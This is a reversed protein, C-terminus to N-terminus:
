WWLWPASVTTEEDAAVKGLEVTKTKEGKHWVVTIEHAAPMGKFAGKRAGITLTRGELRLEATTFADKQYDLSLGDDEYWTSVGDAGLYAHLEIRDNWGRDLHLKVPWRPIVAGAKVYLAGGWRADKVIPRACPGVVEEGTRWEFWTGPPLVVKEDYVGVLLSDGLMYSTVTDAYEPRDPYVFAFPRCIPWGSRHAKAAAGYIYPFLSYRLRAYDRFANFEDEELLWPEDHYHWNNQLTWSALFAYHLRESNAVDLDCSEHPQGSMALNHCSVLTKPGGGTDGAWSPSFQQYGPYGCPNICFPRKDTYVAYGQYMQKSYVLPYINHIEADRYKGAWTRDKWEFVQAGADMKFAKAGHDVFKKLHQFWPETGDQEAGTMNDPRFVPIELALDARTEVTRKDLRIAEKESFRGETHEDFFGEVLIGKDDKVKDKTPKAKGDACLEEYVFLDYNMCLWLCLKKGLRELAHLWTKRKSDTYVPYHFRKTNWTKKTTFDYFYEMWGPELDWGDCPIGYDRFLRAQHVLEFEDAYMNAQFMYGYGFCPLMCPRGTVRTYADLLAAYDKGRVIFFDVEGEEASVIMADKDAVGVDFKSRFTTNLLVGWGRSTMAFPVPIYSVVNKMWIDYVGPRRQFTERSSDGLGYVREDKQLPFRLEFGKATQKVEPRIVGFDLSSGTSLVKQEPWIKYRDILSGKYEGNRAMRVHWIDDALRDVNVMEGYSAVVGFLVTAGIAVACPRKM